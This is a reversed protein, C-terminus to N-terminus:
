GKERDVPFREKPSKGSDQGGGKHCAGGKTPTPTKFIYREGKKSKLHSEYKDIKDRRKTRGRHEKKKGRQPVGGLGRGGEALLRFPSSKEGRGLDKVKGGQGLSYLRGVFATL